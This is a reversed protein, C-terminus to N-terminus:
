APRVTAATRWAHVVDEPIEICQVGYQQCLMQVDHAISYAVLVARGDDQKAGTVVELMRRYKVAQLAGIIDGPPVAVEVELGVFRGFRDRLVVDARDGTPFDREVALTTADPEGLVVSPHAAVYEKLARHEPGEVGPGARPTPSRGLPVRAETPTSEKYLRLLQEFEEPTLKKLGSHGDGFGRLNYTRRYGLVPMVKQRPVFGSRSLLDVPAHWRWWTTTGDTYREPVSDDLSSIHARVAGIAVIGERGVQCRRHRETGDPLMEILTRGSRPHYIFVLDGPALNAGAGERGDPLWVGGAVEDPPYGEHPPWHTTLWHNM